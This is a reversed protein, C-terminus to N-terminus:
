ENCYLIWLSAMVNTLLECHVSALVSPSRPLRQRLPQWCAWPYPQTDQTMGHTGIGLIGASDIDAGVGPLEKGASITPIAPVQNGIEQGWDVRHRCGHEAILVTLYEGGRLSM